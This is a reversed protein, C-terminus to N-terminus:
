SKVGTYTAEYLTQFAKVNLPVYRTSFEAIDTITLGINRPNSHVVVLRTEDIYTCGIVLQAYTADTPHETDGWVTAPMPLGPNVEISCFCQVFQANAEFSPILLGFLSDQDNILVQPTEKAIM